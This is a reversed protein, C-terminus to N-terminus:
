ASQEAIVYIEVRAGWVLLDHGGLEVVTRAPPEPFRRRWVRELGSLEKLDRLLVQSKVVRDLASGDAELVAGINDLVYDTQVEITTGYFPFAPDISAEAPIGTAFDSALQGAAFILGGVRRTASWRHRPGSPLWTRLARAPM